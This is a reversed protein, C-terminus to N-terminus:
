TGSSKETKPKTWQSLLWGVGAIKHEHKPEFSRLCAIIHKGAQVRSIGDKFEPLKARGFFLDSALATWRNENCFEEPIDEWKPLLGRAIIDSPFALNLDSVDKPEM